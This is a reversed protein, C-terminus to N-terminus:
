RRTDGSEHRSERGAGVGRVPGDAPRGDEPPRAREPDKLIETELARLATDTLGFREWDRTFAPFRVFRLWGEPNFPGM